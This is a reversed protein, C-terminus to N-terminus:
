IQLKCSKESGLNNLNKIINDKIIQKNTENNKNLRYNM